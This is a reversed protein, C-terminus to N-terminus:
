TLSKQGAINDDEGNSPCLFGVAFRDTKQLDGYFVEKMREFHGM